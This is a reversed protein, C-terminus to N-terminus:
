AASASRRAAVPFDDYGKVDHLKAPHKSPRRRGPGQDARPRGRPVRLCELRTRQRLYSSGRAAHSRPGFSPPAELGTQWSVDSEQRDEKGRSASLSGSNPYARSWDIEDYQGIHDLLVRHLDRWVGADHWEQLRRWCTSGSGCGMEKPLMVWPIGAKLIFVIGTLAARNPVRPRGGKPKPPESPLLPEVIEWVEDTVLKKAMCLLADNSFSCPKRSPRLAREDRPREKGLLWSTYSHAEILARYDEKAAEVLAKSTAVQASFAAM